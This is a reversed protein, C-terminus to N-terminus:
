PDKGAGTHAGEGVLQGGPEGPFDEVVRDVLHQRARLYGVEATVSAVSTEMWNQRRKQWAPIYASLATLWTTTSLLDLARNELQRPVGSTQVSICLHEAAKRHQCRQKNEQFTQPTGVMM